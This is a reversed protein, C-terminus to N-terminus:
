RTHLMGCCEQMQKWKGVWLFKIPCSGREGLLLRSMHSHTSPPAGRPQCAAQWMVALCAPLLGESGALARQTQQTSLLPMGGGTGLPRGRHPRAALLWCPPTLGTGVAGTDLALWSPSSSPSLPPGQSSLVLSGAELGEM